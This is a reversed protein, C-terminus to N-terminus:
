QLNKLSQELEVMFKNQNKMFLYKRKHDWLKFLYEDELRNHQLEIYIIYYSKPKENLKQNM